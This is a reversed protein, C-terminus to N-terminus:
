QTLRDQRANLVVSHRALDTRPRVRHDASYSVNYYGFVGATGGQRRSGDRFGRKEVPSYRGRASWRMKVQRAGADMGDGGVMM